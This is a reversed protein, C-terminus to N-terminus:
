TAEQTGPLLPVHFSRLVREVEDRREVLVREVASKLAHDGRRVGASIAFQMAPDRGDVDVVPTVTLAV